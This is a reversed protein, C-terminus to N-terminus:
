QSNASIMKHLPSPEPRNADGFVDAIMLLTGALYRPAAEPMREVNMFEPMDSDMPTKKESIIAPSAAVRGRVSLAPRRACPTGAESAAWTALRGGTLVSKADNRPYLGIPLRSLGDPASARRGLDSEASSVLLSYKGCRIEPGKWWPRTMTNPTAMAIDSAPATM